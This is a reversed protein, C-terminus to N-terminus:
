REALRARIHPLFAPPKTGEVGVPSGGPAGRHPDLPCLGRGERHTVNLATQHCVAGAVALPKHNLAIGYGM